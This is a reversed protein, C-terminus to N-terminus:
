FINFSNSYKKILDKIFIYENLDIYVELINKDNDYLMIYSDNNNTKIISKINELCYIEENIEFFNKDKIM